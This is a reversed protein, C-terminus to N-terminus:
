SKRLLMKDVLHFSMSAYLIVSFKVKPEGLISHDDELQSGILQDLIHKVAFLISLLFFVM